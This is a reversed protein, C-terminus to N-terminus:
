IGYLSKDPDIDRKQFLVYKDSILKEIMLHLTGLDKQSLRLRKLIYGIDYCRINLVFCNLVNNLNEISVEM